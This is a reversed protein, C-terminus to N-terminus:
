KPKSFSHVTNVLLKVNDVPTQPLIGHGLNFIFSDMDATKDLIITAEKQVLEPPGFLMQPDLNGQIAKGELITKARDLDTRWDIGIVECDLEALLELYPASNNLYLIRPVGETKCIEFVTKIYPLSFKRYYDPPLIGGWSDFLQVADAGAEIQAKLYKGTLEALQGLMVMADKPYNYIFKKIELFSWTSAGEVLYCALTFPSGCFGILPVRDNLREKIAKLGILVYSMEDAPIYNKLGTVDDPTRVPPTIRPGGSDYSVKVGLPALPLLIDSFMIAADFGLIDIPQLTVDTMLEASRCIEMFSAKERVAMFEPLYRGAQRMIWIPVSDHPQNLAAKIFDFDSM